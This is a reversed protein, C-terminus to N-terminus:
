LQGLTQTLGTFKVKEAPESIPEIWTSLGTENNRWYPRGHEASWVRTHGPVEGAYTPAVDRRLM